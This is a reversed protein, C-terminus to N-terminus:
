ITLFGEAFAPYGPGHAKLSDFEVSCARIYTKHTHTHAGETLTVGMILTEILSFEERFTPIGRRLCLKPDQELSIHNNTSNIEESHLIRSEVSTTLQSSNKQAWLGGVHNGTM